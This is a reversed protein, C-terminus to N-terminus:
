DNVLVDAEITLADEDMDIVGESGLEDSLLIIGPQDDIQRIPNMARESGGGHSQM